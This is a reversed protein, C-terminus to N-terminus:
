AASVDVPVTFFFQQWPIGNYIFLYVGILLFVLGTYFYLGKAYISSLLLAVVALAGVIYNLIPIPAFISTLYLVILIPYVFAYMSKKM